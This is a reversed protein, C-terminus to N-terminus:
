GAAPRNGALLPLTVAVRTGAGERSHVEISGGHAVVIERCLSLGLGAGGGSRAADARYFRDFIRPLHAAPIGTGRDVVEVLAEGGRVAVRVAVSGAPTHEIANRVLNTFVRALAAEDGRVIVAEPADVKLPLGRERAWGAFRGGAAHALEDLGVLDSRLLTGRDLRALLLLDNVLQTMRDTEGEITALAARQQEPTSGPRAGLSAEAKILALPTRLEHSANAAFERQRHYAEEIRDLMQDFSAALYGLEDGSDPLHLRRSLSGAGIARAASTIARVPDLARRALLHGFLFSLLLLAVGGTWLLRLLRALTRSVPELSTVVQLAGLCRGDKVVPVSYIRLPERHLRATALLRQGGCVAANLGAPVPLQRLTPPQSLVHGAHDILRILDRRREIGPLPDPVIREPETGEYVLEGHELEILDLTAQATERLQRDVDRRLTHDLAFYLSAGFLATLLFLLGSHWLTLRVSIRRFFRRNM